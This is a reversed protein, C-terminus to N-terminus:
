MQGYVDFLRWNNDQEVVVYNRTWEGSGWQATKNYKDTLKVTYKVEVIEFNNPNLERLMNMNQYYKQGKSKDTYEDEDLTELSHITVEETYMGDKLNNKYTELYDKKYVEGPLLLDNLKDYEDTIEVKFSDLIVAEAETIPAVDSKFFREGNKVELKYEELKSAVETGTTKSKESNCGAMSLALICIALILVKKIKM